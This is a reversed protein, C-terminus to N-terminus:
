RTVDIADFIPLVGYEPDIWLRVEVNEPDPVEGDSAPEDALQEPIFGATEVEWIMDDPEGIMQTSWDQVGIDERVVERIDLMEADPYGQREFLEQVYREVHAESQLGDHPVQPYGSEPAAAQDQGQEPQMEMLEQQMAPLADTVYELARDLDADGPLEDAVIEVDAQQVLDARFEALYVQQQSQIPSQGGPDVDATAWVHDDVNQETINQAMMAPLFEEWYREDGLVEIQEEGVAAAAEPDQQEIMDHADRQQDMAEEIQEDTAVLDNEEAYEQVLENVLALGLGVNEAGYEDFLDIQLRTQADIEPHPEREEDLVGQMMTRRLGATAQISEIQTATVERGDVTLAAPGDDDSIFQEAQMRLLNEMEESPESVSVDTDDLDDLEDELEGDPRWQAYFLPNESEHVTYLREEEVDYVNIRWRNKDQNMTTFTLYRGDDSWDPISASWDIEETVNRLGSGDPNVIFVDYDRDGHDSMFAIQDRSSWTPVYDWREEHRTINESQGTDMDMVYVNRRDGTESPGVWALETGDPSWDPQIAVPEDEVLAQPDSEGDTMYISDTGGPGGESYAMTLSGPKWAPHGQNGMRSAADAVPMVEGTPRHVVIIRRQEVDPDEHVLALHNGDDAWTLGTTHRMLGEVPEMDISESESGDASVLSVVSRADRTGSEPDVYAVWQGDPSWAIGAREAFPVPRQALEQLNTGDANVTSITHDDDYELFLITGPIDGEEVFAGPQHIEGGWDGLIFTLGIGFSIVILAAAAMGAFQKSYWKVNRQEDDHGSGTGDADGPEAPRGTSEVHEDTVNMAARTGGLQQHLNRSMRKPFDTEPWEIDSATKVERAVELLARLEDDEPLESEDLRDDNLADIYQDLLDERSTM